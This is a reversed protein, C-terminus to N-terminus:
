IRSAAAFSAIHLGFTTKLNKRKLVYSPHYTAFVLSCTIPYCWVLGYPDEGERYGTCRTIAKKGLALIWDEEPIEDLTEKLTYYRLGAKALEARLFRAARGRDEPSIGLVLPKM